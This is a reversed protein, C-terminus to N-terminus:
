SAFGLDGVVLNEVIEEVLDEGAGREGEGAFDEDVGRGEVWAGGCGGGGTECRVGRM